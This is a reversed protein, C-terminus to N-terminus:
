SMLLNQTIAATANAHQLPQTEAIRLGPSVRSLRFAMPRASSRDAASKLAAAPGRYRKVAPSKRPM